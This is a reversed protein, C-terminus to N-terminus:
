CTCHHRTLLFVESDFCGSIFIITSAMYLKSSNNYIVSLHRHKKHGCNECLTTYKDPTIEKFFHLSLVVNSPHRPDLMIVVFLYSETCNRRYEFVKCVSLHTFM